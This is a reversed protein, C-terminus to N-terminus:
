VAHMHRWNELRLRLPIHEGIRLLAGRESIFKGAGLMEKSIGILDNLQNLANMSCPVVDQNNGECSFSMMVSPLNLGKARQYLSSMLQHIGKVHDRNKLELNNKLGKSMEEDMMNLVVRDMLECVRMCADKLLDASTAIGIAYFHGGHWPKGNKLIIPNDSIQKVENEIQTKIYKLNQCIQGLIHPACRLSYKEQVCSQNEEGEEMDYTNLFKSREERIAHCIGIPEKQPNMTFGEPNFHQMNADMAISAQGIFEICGEVLEQTQRYLEIAYSCMMSNTNVMCIVDRPGEPDMEEFIPAVAHAMPILDGSAGLSGYKPVKPLEKAKSLEWLKRYAKPSVGSFGQSLKLAQIRLARRVVKEPLFEGVGVRLYNLLHKQDQKWNAKEKEDKVNSGYGTDIGYIKSENGELLKMVREYSESVVEINFDKDIEISKNALAYYFKLCEMTKM